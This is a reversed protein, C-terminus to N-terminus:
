NRLVFVAKGYDNKHVFVEFTDTGGAGGTRSRMTGGSGSWNNLPNSVKCTYDINERALLERVKAFKQMDTGIYVSKRNLITIM